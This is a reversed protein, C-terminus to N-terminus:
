KFDIFFDLDLLLASGACLLEFNKIVQPHIVGLVGINTKVGNIVAIIDGRRGELFSPHSSHVLYYGKNEDKWTLQLVNMIQNLLGHIVEFASTTDTVVACLQRKNKAGVETNPDVLLIDSVEFVKLPLPVEKNSELTKLIGPLLSTRAVQFEITAPNSIEVAHGDPKINM